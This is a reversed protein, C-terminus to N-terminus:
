ELRNRSKLYYIFGFIQLTLIPMLAVLAIMGFGDILINAHPIAEAAGQIFALIFTSTMPGSAVGGADFSMGVFIKPVIWSLSIVVIYGPLLLHWLQVAPFALRVTSLLVALGVGICLTVLIPFSKIAGSTVNEIQQTLISVAPEALISVFGLLFGIVYMYTYTEQEALNHGIIAGVNMFGANIGTLFLILGIYVYFTGKLIRKFQNKHLKLKLLHYLVFLFLIPMIALFVEFLQIFGENIFETLIRNGSVLQIDISGILSQSPMFINVIMVSLIAGTSAIAVLGFSNEESSKSNKNLTAIGTSFALLFPVTVAGTTAGSADFAISLFEKDTFFALLLIIIYTITLFTTLSFSYVMRLLGVVVMGAIGISVVVVIFTGSIEGGTVMDIQSGLVTLSPEAASIFFGLILGALVVVIVKNSLAIGKGMHEGIPTLAIEVGVLFVTLGIIIMISGLLFGTLTNLPLPVLFFHIILVLIVIPLVARIVESSKEKLISM